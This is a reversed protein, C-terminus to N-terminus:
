ARMKSTREFVEVTYGDPDRCEFSRTDGRVVTDSVVVAAKYMRQLCADLDAVNIFLKLGDCSPAVERETERLALNSSYRISRSSAGSVRLGLCREYFQRSADLDRVMLAVGVTPEFDSAEDVPERAISRKVDKRSTGNTRLFLTLGIDTSVLLRRKIRLGNEEREGSEAVSIVRGGVPLRIDSERSWEEVHAVFTSIERKDLVRHRPENERKFFLEEAVRRIYEEDQIHRVYADLWATGNVVGLLCATMSALTDTDAGSASAARRMGEAPSAAYRSALYIAGVATTTGAGNTKQNLGGIDGLIRLDDSLVGATLGDSAVRMQRIMEESTSDWYEQYDPDHAEAASLWSPWRHSIDPLAGWVHVDEICREVLDGYDLVGVRRLANWVTYAFALAGLLARPHGHTTVADSLVDVALALFDDSGAHAVCHPLVRMAAGNGGAAFYRSAIDKGVADWPAVGGLWSSAARKTAGGGGREYCTWFPLEVTAFYRWWEEGTARARAVALILQTDDSYEGAKVEEWTPAFRSGGRKMWSLFEGSWDHAVPKAAARGEFPWGLADGVAAGLFAAVARDPSTIIKQGMLHNLAKDSM